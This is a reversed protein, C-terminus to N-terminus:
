FKKLSQTIVAPPAASPADQMQASTDTEKTCDNTKQQVEPDAATVARPRVNPIAENLSAWFLEGQRAM